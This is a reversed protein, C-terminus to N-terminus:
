SLFFLVPVAWRFELVLCVGRLSDKCHVV